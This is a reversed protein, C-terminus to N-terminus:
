QGAMEVSVGIKMWVLSPFLLFGTVAALVEEAAECAEDTELVGMPTLSLEYGVARPMPFLCMSRSWHFAVLSNAWWACLDKGDEGGNEDKEHDYGDEDSCWLSYICLCSQDQRHYIQVPLVHSFCM